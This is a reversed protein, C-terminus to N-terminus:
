QRAEGAPKRCAQRSKKRAFYLFCGALLAYKNKVSFSYLLVKCIIPITGIM